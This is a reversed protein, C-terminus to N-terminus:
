VEGKRARNRRDFEERTMERWGYVELIRIKTQNFDPLSGPLKGVSIFIGYRYNYPESFFTENIKTLDEEIDRRSPNKKVQFVVLNNMNVGRHHIVIDPRRGDHKILEIDINYESFQNELEGALHHCINWEPM